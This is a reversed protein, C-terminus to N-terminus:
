RLAAFLIAGGRSLTETLCEIGGDDVPFDVEALFGAHTTQIVLKSEVAEDPVSAYVPSYRITELCPITIAVILTLTLWEGRPLLFQYV